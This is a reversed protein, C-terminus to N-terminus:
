EVAMQNGDQRVECRLAVEYENLLEVCVRGGLHQEPTHTHASNQRSQAFKHVFVSQWLTVVVIVLFFVVAVENVIGDMDAVEDLVVLDIM